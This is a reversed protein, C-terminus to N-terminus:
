NGKNTLLDFDKKVYLEYSKPHLAKFKNIYSLFKQSDKELLTKMLTQIEHPKVKRCISLAVICTTV